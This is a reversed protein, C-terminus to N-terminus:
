TTLARTEAIRGEGAALLLCLLRARTTAAQAAKLFRRREAANLYKRGGHPGHLTLGHQPGDKPQVDNRKQRARHFPIALLTAILNALTKPANPRHHTEATIGELM